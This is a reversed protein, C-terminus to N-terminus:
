MGMNYNTMTANNSDNAVGTNNNNTMQMTMRWGRGMTQLWGGNKNDNTPGEWHANNNMMGRSSCQCPVM